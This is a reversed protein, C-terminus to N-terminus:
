GSSAWGSTEPRWGGKSPDAGSGLLCAAADFGGPAGAARFAAAYAAALADRSADVASEDWYPAVAHVVVDFALGPAETKVARGPACRRGGRAAPAARACEARLAAGGLRHVVGDVCQAAYLLDAGTEVAGWADARRELGPPPAPPCPGGRPFYPRACGVLDENAARAGPRGM